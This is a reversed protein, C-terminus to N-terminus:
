VSWSGQSARFSMVVRAGSAPIMTVNRHRAHEPRADAAEEGSTPGAPSPPAQGLLPAAESSSSPAITTSM